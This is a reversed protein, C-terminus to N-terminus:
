AKVGLQFLYKKLERMFDGMKIRQEGVMSMVSEKLFIVEYLQESLNNLKTMIAQRGIGRGSGYRELPFEQSNPEKRILNTVPEADYEYLRQPPHNERAPHGFTVRNYGNM